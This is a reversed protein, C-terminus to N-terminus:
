CKTAVFMFVSISVSASRFVSDSLAIRATCLQFLQQNVTKTEDKEIYFCCAYFTTSIFCNILFLGQPILKHGMLSVHGIKLLFTHALRM